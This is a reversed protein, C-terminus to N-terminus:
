KVTAVAQRAGVDLVFLPPSNFAPNVQSRHLTAWPQCLAGGQRRKSGQATSGDSWQKVATAGREVAIM